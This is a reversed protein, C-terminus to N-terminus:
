ADPLNGAKEEAGSSPKAPKQEKVEELNTGPHDIHLLVTEGAEYLRGNIFSREKVRYEKVM